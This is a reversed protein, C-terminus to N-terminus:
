LGGDKNAQKAEGISKDGLRELKRKIRFLVEKDMKDGQILIERKM